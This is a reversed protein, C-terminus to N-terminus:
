QNNAHSPTKNHTLKRKSERKETEEGLEGPGEFYRVDVAKKGKEKREEVGGERGTHRVGVEGNNIKTCLIRQVARKPMKPLSNMWMGERSASRLEARLRIFFATQISRTLM